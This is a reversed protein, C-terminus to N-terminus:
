FCEGIYKRTEKLKVMEIEISKDCTKMIQEVESLKTEITAIDLANEADKLATFAKKAFLKISVFGADVEELSLKNKACKADELADFIKYIEDSVYQAYKQTYEIESKIRKILYIKEDFEEEIKSKRIYDLSFGVNQEVREAYTITKLLNERAKEAQASLNAFLFITFFPILKRIIKLTDFTNFNFYQKM